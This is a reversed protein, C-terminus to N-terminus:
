KRVEVRAGNSDDVLARQGLPEDLRVQVAEACALSDGSVEDSIVRVRVETATETVGVVEPNGGCSGVTLRLGTGSSDTSADLLVTPVRQPAGGCGSALSAVAVLGLAM